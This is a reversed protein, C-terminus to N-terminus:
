RPQSIQQSVNLSNLSNRPRYRRGLRSTRAFVRSLHIQQYWKRSSPEAHLRVLNQTKLISPCNLVVGRRFVYQQGMGSVCYNVDPGRVLIDVRNRPPPLPRSEQDVVFAASAKPCTPVFRSQPSPTPDGPEHNVSPVDGHADCQLVHQTCCPRV